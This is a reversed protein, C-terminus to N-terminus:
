NQSNPLFERFDPFNIEYVIERRLTTLIVMQDKFDVFQLLIRKIEQPESISTPNQSLFKWFTEYFDPWVKYRSCQIVIM